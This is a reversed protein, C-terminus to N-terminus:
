LSERTVSGLPLAAGLNPPQLAIFEASLQVSVLPEAGDHRARVCHHPYDQSCLWVTKPDWGYLAQDCMRSRTQRGKLHSEQQLKCQDPRIRVPSSLDIFLDASVAWSHQLDELGPREASGRWPAANSTAVLDTIWGLRM